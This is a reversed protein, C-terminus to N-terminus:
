EKSYGAIAAWILLGFPVTGPVMAVTDRSPSDASVTVNARNDERNASTISFGVDINRIWESIQL